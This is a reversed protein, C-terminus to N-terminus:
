GEVIATHIFGDEAVYSVAISERVGCDNCRPKRSRLKAEAAKIAAKRAPSDEGTGALARAIEDELRRADCRCSSSLETIPYADAANFDVAYGIDQLWGVTIPSVVAVEPGLIPTM